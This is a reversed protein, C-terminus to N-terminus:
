AMSFWACYDKDKVCYNGSPEHGQVPIATGLTEKALRAQLKNVFFDSKDNKTLYQRLDVDSLTTDFHVARPMEVANPQGLGKFGELWTSPLSNSDGFVTISKRARTAAVYLLRLNEQTKAADPESIRWSGLALVVNDWELGKASHMTGVSVTGASGTSLEDYTVESLYQTFGGLTVEDGGGLTETRAFDDVLADLLEFDGEGRHEAKYEEAIERFRMASWPRVGVDSDKELRERFGLIERTNGVNCREKDRGKLLKYGVGRQELKAAALYAEANDRTLVCWSEGPEAAAHDALYEAAAFAANEKKPEEYFELRAAGPTRAQSQVGEKERETMLDLLRANARVVGSLSRYNTTLYFKETKPFDDAFRRFYESSSGRFAFISQDDDGVAIVRPEEGLAYLARLLRYEGASLDQFEDVLIVSPAGVGIEEGSELFEAARVIIEDGKELTKRDGYLGLVSFALSHFTMINVKAALPGALDLVRKRLERCAARTYTLCLVADPKAEEMWLLSALKHVLLHTKGAGPGAAVLIHKRGSRIIKRQEDNVDEIKRKLEDSVADTRLNGPLYKLRFDEVDLVFYDDLLEQASRENEIMRSAYEGVIHIAEAKHKYHEDLAKFDHDSFKRGKAGAKLCITMGTYFVVLGHELAISGVLHLFLLAFEVTKQMEVDGVATEGFICAVLKNLSFWVLNGNKQEKQMEGLVDVVQEFVHWHEDLRKKVDAPPVLFEIQYIQHGAEVLHIEAIKEHNWYRLIGRLIFLNRRSSSAGVRTEGQRLRSNLEMMDMTFWEGVDKADCNALLAKQLDEAARLISRPTDNGKRELKASWDDHEELLRLSRLLRLGDEAQERTLGLDITLEDFSCEPNRTWRKTVIHRVIRYATSEVSGPVDVKDSGIAERAQEATEVSISSGYMQTINRKRELFGQEELVQVAHRVKTANSQPDSEKESWGCQDAIELASLVVRDRNGAAKKLTKWVAAVEQWSLKAQQMIQFNADLDHPSYLAVCDANLKPDRGARGAEQVYNELTSSIEYHVVLGVDDKDVGMGFA